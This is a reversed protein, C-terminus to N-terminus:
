SRASKDAMQVHDDPLTRMFSTTWWIQIATWTIVGAVIGMAMPIAGAWGADNIAILLGGFISFKTIYMAMGVPLVMRSNVSDAWAIALTSAVYSVIALGVGAVVGVLGVPGAALLGILGGVVLVAVNIPLQYRLHQVRPRV